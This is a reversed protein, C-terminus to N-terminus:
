NNFPKTQEGNILLSWTDREPFTIKGNYHYIYGGSAAIFIDDQIFLHESVISGKDDLLKVEIEKGSEIPSEITLETEEGVIFEAPHSILKYDETKPFPPLVEITFEEFLQDDVLFSLQWQGEKPFPFFSTLAHADENYAPPDLVGETLIIKENYDNKAEVRYNKTVLKSSDGWFYLMLKAGRRTDGAVFQENFLLGVKGEVGILDYGNNFSEAEPANLEIKSQFSQKLETTWSNDGNSLFLAFITACMLTFVSLPKIFQRSKRSHTERRIALVIKEKQEEKLTYKPLNKLSEQLNKM